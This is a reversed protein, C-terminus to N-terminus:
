ISRRFHVSLFDRKWGGDKLRTLEDNEPEWEDVLSRILIRLQQEPELIHHALEVKNLERPRKQNVM